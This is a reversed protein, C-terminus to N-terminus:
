VWAYSSNQTLHTRSEPIHKKATGSNTTNCRIYNSLFLRLHQMVLLWSPLHQCYFLSCLIAFENHMEVMAHVCNSFFNINYLNLLVFFGQCLSCYLFAHQLTRLRWSTIIEDSCLVHKLIIILCVLWYKSLFFM